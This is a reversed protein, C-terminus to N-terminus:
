DKKKDLYYHIQKAVDRGSAISRVVLGAGYIADGAAFVKAYSTEMSKSVAINKRGEVALNLQEVLGEQVPHVFGM